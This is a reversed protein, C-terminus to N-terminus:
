TCQQEYILLRALNSLCADWISVRFLIDKFARSLLRFIPIVALVQGRQSGAYGQQQQSAPRPAPSVPRVPDQQM